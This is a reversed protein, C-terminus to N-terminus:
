LSHPPIEPILTALTSVLRLGARGGSTRWGPPFLGPAWQPQPKSDAIMRPPTMEGEEAEM